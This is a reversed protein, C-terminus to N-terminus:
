KKLSPHYEGLLRLISQAYLKNLIKRTRENTEYNTTWIIDYNIPLAEAAKTLAGRANSSCVVVDCGENAFRTLDPVLHTGTDDPVDIGITTKRVTFIMKRGSNEPLLQLKFRPHKRKLETIFNQLIVSKPQGDGSNIVVITKLQATM